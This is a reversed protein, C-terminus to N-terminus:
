RGRPHDLRGRPTSISWKSFWQELCVQQKYTIQFFLVVNRCFNKADGFIHV